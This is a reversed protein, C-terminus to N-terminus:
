SNVINVILFSRPAENAVIGRQVGFGMIDSYIGMPGLQSQSNGRSSYSRPRSTYNESM